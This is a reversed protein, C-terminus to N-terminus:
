RGHMCACWAHMPTLREHRPACAQECAHMCAISNTLSREREGGLGAGVRRRTSGRSSLGDGRDASRTITGGPRWGWILSRPGPVTGDSPAGGGRGPISSTLSRERERERARALVRLPSLSSCTSRGPREPLQRLGYISLRNRLPHGGRSCAKRCLRTELVRTHPTPLM